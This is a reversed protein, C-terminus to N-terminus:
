IGKLNYTKNNEKKNRNKGKQFGNVFITKGNKYHRYYGRVDWCDCSYNYSRKTDSSKKKVVRFIDDFNITAEKEPQKYHRKKKPVEHIVVNEEPFDDETIETISIEREKLKTMITCEVGAVLRAIGHAIHAAADDPRMNRFEMLKPYWGGPYLRGEGNSPSSFRIIHKRGNEPEEASVSYTTTSRDYNIYLHSNGLILHIQYKNFIFDKIIPIGEDICADLDLLAMLHFISYRGEIKAGKSMKSNYVDYILESLFDENDIKITIM